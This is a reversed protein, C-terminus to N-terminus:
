HGNDTNYLNRKKFLYIYILFKTPVNSVTWFLYIDTGLPEVTYKSANCKPQYTYSNSFSYLSTVFLLNIISGPSAM